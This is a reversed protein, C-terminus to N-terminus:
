ILGVVKSGACSRQVMIMGSMLKKVRRAINDVGIYGTKMKRALGEIGIYAAKAM